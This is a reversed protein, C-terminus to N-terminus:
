SAMLCINSFEEAKLSVGGILLGGLNKCSFLEKTNDKNVSGGYLIKTKNSIGNNLLWQRIMNLMENISDITPIKGSGIAWIPEYAIIFEKNNKNIPVSEKLQSEIFQLANGAERDKLSEGVCIIPIMKNDIVNKAKLFIDQSSEHNGNRRESHGVIVYKCGIDLLMKASVEGTYAGSINKSCDQTGISINSNKNMKKITDIYIVPPFLAVESLMKKNNLIDFISSSLQVAEKLNCNLKWNGAILM